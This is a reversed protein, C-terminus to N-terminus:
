TDTNNIDDWLSVPHYGTPVKVVYMWAIIICVSAIATSLGLWCLAFIVCGIGTWFIGMSKYKLSTGGDNERIYNLFTQNKCHFDIKAYKYKDWKYGCGDIVKITTNCNEIIQQTRNSKCLVNVQYNNNGLDILKDYPDVSIKYNTSLLLGGIAGFIILPIITIIIWICFGKNIFKM